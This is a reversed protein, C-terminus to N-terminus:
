VQKPTPIGFYKKSRKHKRQWNDINSFTIVDINDPQRPNYNKHKISKNSRWVEQKTFFKRGLWIFIRFLIRNIM